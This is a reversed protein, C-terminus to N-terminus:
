GGGARAVYATPFAGAAALVYAAEVPGGYALPGLGGATGGLVLLLGERQRIRARSSPSLRALSFGVFGTLLLALAWFMGEIGLDYSVYLSGGPGRPGPAASAM